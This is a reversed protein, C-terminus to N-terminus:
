RVASLKTASQPSSEQRAAGRNKRAQCKTERVFVAFSNLTTNYAANMMM